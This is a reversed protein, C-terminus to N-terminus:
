FCSFQAKIERFGEFFWNSRRIVCNGVTEDFFSIASEVLLWAEFHPQGDGYGFPNLDAEKWSNCTHSLEFSERAAM